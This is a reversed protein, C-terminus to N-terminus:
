LFYSKEISNIKIHRKHNNNIIMLYFLSTSFLNDRLSSMWNKCLKLVFLQCYRFFWDYLRQRLNKQKKEMQNSSVVPNLSFFYISFEDIAQQIKYCFPLHYVSAHQDRMMEIWIMHQFQTRIVATQCATDYGHIQEVLRNEFSSNTRACLKYNKCKETKKKKM